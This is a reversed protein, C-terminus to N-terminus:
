SFIWTWCIRHEEAQYLRGPSNPARESRQVASFERQVRDSRDVRDASIYLCRAHLAVAQPLYYESRPPAPEFSRAM